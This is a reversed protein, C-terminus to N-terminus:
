SKTGFTIHETRDNLQVIIRASMDANPLTYTLTRSASQLAPLTIIGKDIVTATEDTSLLATYHYAATRSEHNAIQFTINQAQGVPSYTPLKGTNAFSLATFTDSKKTTAMAWANAITGGIFLEVSVASVILLVAVIIYSRKQM